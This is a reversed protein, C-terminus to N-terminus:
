NLQFVGGTIRSYVECKHVVFNDLEEKLANLQELKEKKDNDM